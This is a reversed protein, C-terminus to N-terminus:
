ENYLLKDLPTFIFVSCNHRLKCAENSGYQFYEPVMFEYHLDQM